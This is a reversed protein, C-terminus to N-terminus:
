PRVAPAGVAARMAAFERALRPLASVDAAPAGTLSRFVSEAETGDLFTGYRTALDDLAPRDGNMAAAMACQLVARRFRADPPAGDRILLPLLAAYRRQAEDWTEQDFAQDARLLAADDGPLAELIRNAADHRGRAIEARAAALGRAQIMPEPLPGPPATAALAALAANGDGVAVKIEALALGVESRLPGAPMDQLLRQYVEAARGPLDLAVLREALKRALAVGEAGDPLADANNEVLMVFTAAPLRPAQAPLDALLSAIRSRLRATDEPFYRIADRLTQVAASPDGAQQRLEAVRERLAREWVDGHWAYLQGDLADAASAASLTGAAHRIEVIRRLARARVRHDTGNALSAYLAQAGEADGAAERAMARAFALSAEGPLAALVAQGAERNRQAFLAEAVAPALRVRLASPYAPLLRVAARAVVEPAPLPVGSAAALAGRWLMAEDGDGLGPDNLGRAEVIRGAILAAAASLARVRLSQGARPDESGVRWLMAQAEPALGLALMTEAADARAQGRSLPPLAGAEMVQRKLRERLGVIDGAPFDFIRVGTGFGPRSPGAELALAGDDPGSYLVEFGDADARLAIRDSSPAVIVGRLSPLLQFEPYVRARDLAAAPGRQTGILLTRGDEPDPVALVGGPLPSAVRLRVPDVVAQVTVPLSAAGQGTAVRWGGRTRAILPRAEPPPAPLSLMLGGALDIARAGAPLVTDPALHGQEVVAILWGGRLFLATGASDPALIVPEAPGTLPAAEVAVAAASEVQATPPAEVPRPPEDAPAPPQPTSPATARSPPTLRQPVLPRPAAAAPRRSPDYIDVVVRNGLRMHRVTAGPAITLVAQGEGGEIARLNRLARHWGPVQGGGEFRLTVRDGDQTLRYPVAHPWDYVIRAYSPHLGVRVKPSVPAPTQAFAAGACLSVALGVALRLMSM